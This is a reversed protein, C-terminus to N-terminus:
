GCYEPKYQHNRFTDTYFSDATVKKGFALNTSTETNKGLPGVGKHTPVIAKIEGPKGFEIRDACIQRTLGNPTFPLDHRHYIMYYENGEKLMSHHGPGDVTKDANTALIPNKPGMKFDGNPTDGVAYQVRYTSDHCSGSSYMFYFLGDKELMFPAEFFDKIQTNPIKGLGDFTKMDSKLKGWGAGSNPFIGWTGWYMFTEGKSTEFVHSDLTLVDKVLHNPAVLGTEGDVPAWPGIPSDSVGSYIECPRTFYLWYRDDPGKIVDPAWYNETKSLPWNMPALTWNLFDESMWVQSPGRGGGNGDTTSYIYYTDGFKKITPDAFYGPLIPNFARPTDFPVDEALVCVSSLVLTSSVIATMLTGHATRDLIPTPTKVLHFKRINRRSISHNIITPPKGIPLSHVGDKVANKLPYPTTKDSRM